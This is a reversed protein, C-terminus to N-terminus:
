TQKTLCFQDEIKLLYNLSSQIDISSASLYNKLKNLCTLAECYIIVTNERISLFDNLSAHLELYIKHNLNM